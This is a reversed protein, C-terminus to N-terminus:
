DVERAAHLRRQLEAKRGGVRLDRRRLEAKLAAVDMQVIDAPLHTGLSVGCRWGDLAEAEEVTLGIEDTRFWGDCSDCCVEM